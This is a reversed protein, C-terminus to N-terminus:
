IVCLYSITEVKRAPPSIEVSGLSPTTEEAAPLDLYAFVTRFKLVCFHLASEQSPVVVVGM